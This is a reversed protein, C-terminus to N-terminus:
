KESYVFLDDVVLRYGANSMFMGIDTPQFFEEDSYESVLKGNIYLEMNDGDFYVSLTNTHPFPNIETETAPILESWKEGNYKSLRFKKEQPQIDFFYMTAKSRDSGFVLGYPNVTQIDTSLDAQMYYSGSKPSVYSSTGVTYMDPANAQLILKGNIIELKGDPYYLAWHLKNSSFEEHTVRGPDSPPHILIEPVPTITPTITPATSAAMQGRGVTLVLICLALYLIGLCGGTFLFIPNRKKSSEIPLEDM